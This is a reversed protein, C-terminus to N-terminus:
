QCLHESDPQFHIVIQLTNICTITMSMVNYLMLIHKITNDYVYIYIDYSIIISHEGVCKIM